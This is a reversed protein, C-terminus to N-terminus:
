RESGGSFLCRLSIRQNWYPPLRTLPSSGGGVRSSVTTALAVTITAVGFVLDNNRFVTTLSRPHIKECIGM